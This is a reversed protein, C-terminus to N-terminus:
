TSLYVLVKVADVASPGGNIGDMESLSSLLGTGEIESHTYYGPRNRKVLSLGRGRVALMDEGSILEGVDLNSEALSRLEEAVGRGVIRSATWECPCKTERNSGLGVRVEFPVPRRYRRSPPSCISDEQCGAMHNERRALVWRHRRGCPWWPVEDLNM